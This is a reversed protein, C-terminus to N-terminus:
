IIKVVNIVEYTESILQSSKDYKHIIRVDALLSSGAPIPIKGKKFKSLWEEDLIKAHITVNGLKFEWKSDGLYDPRKIKITLRAKRALQTETISDEIDKLDIHSDSKTLVIQKHEKQLEDDSYEIQEEDNSLEKTSDTIDNVAKAFELIDPEKYDLRDKLGTNSAIEDIKNIADKVNDRLFNGSEVLGLTAERSKNIYEKAKAEDIKGNLPQSDEGTIFQKFKVFISGKEIDELNIESKYERGITKAILSDCANIADISKAIARFLRSPDKTDKAFTLRLNFNSTHIDM